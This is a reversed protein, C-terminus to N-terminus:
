KQCLEHLHKFVTKALIDNGYGHGVPFATISYLKQNGQEPNPTQKDPPLLFISFMRYRRGAGMRVDLTPRGPLSNIVWEGKVSPQLKSKIGELPISKTGAVILPSEAPPEDM